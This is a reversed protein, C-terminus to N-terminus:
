LSLMYVIGLKGWIEFFFLDMVEIVNWSLEIRLYVSFSFPIDTVLGWYVARLWDLTCDTEVPAEALRVSLTRLSLTLQLTNHTNYHYLTGLQTLQFPSNRYSQSCYGYRRRIRFCLTFLTGSALLFTQLCSDMHTEEFNEQKRWIGLLMGNPRGRTTFLHTFTHERHGAISQEGM